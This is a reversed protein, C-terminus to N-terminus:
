KPPHPKHERVAKIVERIEREFEEQFVLYRAQQQPSLIDRMEDMIKAQAQQKEEQISKFRDIVATLDKDAANNKL